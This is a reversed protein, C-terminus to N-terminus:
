SFPPVRTSACQYVVVTNRSVLGGVAAASQLAEADSQGSRRAEVYIDLLADDGEADPDGSPGAPPVPVETGVVGGVEKWM